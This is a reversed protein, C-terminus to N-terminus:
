REKVIAVKTRAVEGQSNHAVVIYVGDSVWRGRADRGDWGWAAESHSLRRVVGGDATLITVSADGALSSGTFYLLGQFPNFPNPEVTLGVLRPGFDRYSTRLVLTGEETGIWVRGTTPEFGLATVRSAPLPQSPEVSYTHLLTFLDSAIVLVGFDTGFWKNGKPDVAIANVSVNRLPYISTFSANTLDSTQTSVWYAGDISGAWMYGAPDYTLDFIQPSGLGSLPGWILDDGRDNLTGKHDLVYVGRGAIATPDTSAIWVRGRGDVELVDFHPYNGFLNRHFYIWDREPSPDEIFESPVCVLVRGDVAGRNAIWVNGWSDLAIAPALVLDIEPSSNSYGILRAGTHPFHNFFLTTDERFWAVGGMFSGVWIDGRRDECVSFTYYQYFFETDQPAFNNKWIRGDWRSLGFEGGGRGGVLLVEGRRTVSIGRAFNTIPGSPLRHRWGEEEWVVVGGPSASNRSSGVM